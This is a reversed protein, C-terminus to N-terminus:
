AVNKEIASRSKHTTGPTPWSTPCSMRQQPPSPFMESKKKRIERNDTERENACTHAHMWDVGKCVVVHVVHLVGPHGQHFRVISVDVVVHELVALVADPKRESATVVQDLVVSERTEGCTLGGEVGRRGTAIIRM